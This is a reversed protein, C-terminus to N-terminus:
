EALKGQRFFFSYPKYKKKTLSNVGNPTYVREKSLPNPQRDYVTTCPREAAAPRNKAQRDYVRMSLWNHQRDISGTPKRGTPKGTTFGCPYVSEEIQGAFGVPLDKTLLTSCKSNQCFSRCLHGALRGASIVPLSIPWPPQFYSRGAFVWRCANQCTEQRQGVPLSSRCPWRCPQGAPHISYNRSSLMKVPLVSRCFFGLSEANEESQGAINVPLSVPLISRCPSHLLILSNDIQGAIM